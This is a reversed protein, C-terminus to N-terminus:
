IARGRAYSLLKSSTPGTEVDTFGAQELLAVYDRVDVKAMPSLHNEVLLKLFGKKPPELDMSCGHMRSTEITKIGVKSANFYRGPHFYKLLEHSGPFM